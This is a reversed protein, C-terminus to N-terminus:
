DETWPASDVIVVEEETFEGHNPPPPVARYSPRKIEKAAQLLQGLNNKIYENM